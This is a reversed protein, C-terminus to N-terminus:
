LELFRGFTPQKYYDQRKPKALALSRWFKTSVFDSQITEGFCEAVCELLIVDEYSQGCYMKAAKRAMAEELFDPGQRNPVGNEGHYRMEDWWSIEWQHAGLCIKWGDNTWRTMAAHGPQRIGWTPIGWAKCMFRGFWARAGCKGGASVLDKYNRFEHDPQRYGVDTRVALAYRWQEDNTWIEDPRYAKLYERAWTLDKHTANSDVVMRLEWVSLKDFAADLAGDLHADAYHWFREMPDVHCTQEQKMIPIPTAHELAVAMALRELLKRRPSNSGEKEKVQLHLNGCIVLAPGFNGHVPGGAVLFGKMCGPNALFVDLFAHHPKPDQACWEALKKPTSQVLVTCELLQHQVEKNTRLISLLGSATNINSGVRTATQSLGNVVTQAKEVALKAADILASPDVAEVVGDVDSSLDEQGKQLGELVTSSAQLSEKSLEYSQLISSFIGNPDILAQSPIAKAIEERLVQIRREFYEETYKETDMTAAMTSENHENHINNNTVM